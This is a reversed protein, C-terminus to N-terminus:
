VSLIWKFFDKITLKMKVNEMLYQLSIAVNNNQTSKAHRGVCVWLLVILKYFIKRNKQLYFVSKRGWTKRSIGCLYAFNKNKTSQAHRAGYVCFLLILKNFFGAIQNALIIKTWLEFVLIKALYPMQPWIDFVINAKMKGPKWSFSHCIKKFFDLFVKPFNGKPTLGLNFM